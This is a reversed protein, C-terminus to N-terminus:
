TTCYPVHWLVNCARNPNTRLGISLCNFRWKLIGFTQEIIVRTRCLAGNFRERHRIENTHNYPTMLYRRCPYGPDGLMFGSYLDNEFDHCLQSERFVRSDHCSGPWRAVCNTIIFNNNCVMQVNLSHFGKRNVYDPENERPTSIRVFTGDIYGLVQPMGTLDENRRFEEIKTLLRTIARKNGTRIQKLKTVEM